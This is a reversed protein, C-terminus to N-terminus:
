SAFLLKRCNHKADRPKVLGWVIELNHPIFINLKELSVKALDAAIAAGGGRKAIHRPTSIYKIGKLEFIQEIAQQYNVDEPKEWIECILSLSIKSEIMDKSFSNIRPRLSRVNAVSISPLQRGPEDISDLNPYNSEESSVSSVSINGDFQPIVGVEEGTQCQPKVSM